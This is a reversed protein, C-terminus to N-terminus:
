EKRRYPCNRIARSSWGKNNIIKCTNIEPNRISRRNKSHVCYYCSEDVIKEFSDDDMYDILYFLLFAGFVVIFLDIIM